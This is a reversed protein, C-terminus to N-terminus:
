QTGPFHPAGVLAGSKTFVQGQGRRVRWVKKDGLLVKHTKFGLGSEPWLTRGGRTESLAGDPHRYKTVIALGEQNM